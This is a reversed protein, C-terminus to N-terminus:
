FIKHKGSDKDIELIKGYKNKFPERSYANLDIDKVEIIMIGKTKHSIVIDPTKGAGGWDLVTKLFIKWDEPLNKDLFEALFREGPM